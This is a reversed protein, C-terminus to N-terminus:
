KAAAKEAKKAAPKVVKKAAPKAAPKVAPKAAPKVAPKAAPKAVPAMAVKAAPIRNLLARSMAAWQGADSSMASSAQFLSLYKRASAMNKANFYLRGAAYAAEARVGEPGKLDDAVRAFLLTASNKDGKMENLYAVNLASKKALFEDKCEQSIKTYLEIAKDYEKKATYDAALAFAASLAEPAGSNNKLLAQLKEPSDANAFKASVEKRNKEMVYKVSYFAAVAVLIVICFAFIKKGNAIFWLEFKDFNESINDTLDGAPAPMNDKNANEGAPKKEPTIGQIKQLKQIKKARKM